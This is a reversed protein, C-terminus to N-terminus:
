RELREEFYQMEFIFTVFAVLCVVVGFQTLTKMENTFFPEIILNYFNDVLVWASLILLLGNLVAGYNIRRKKM